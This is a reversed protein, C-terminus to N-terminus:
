NNYVMRNYGCNYPQFQTATHHMFKIDVVDFSIEYEM